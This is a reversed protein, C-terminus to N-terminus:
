AVWAAGTLPTPCVTRIPLGLGLLDPGLGPHGLGHSYVVRPQLVHPAFYLFCYEPVPWTTHVPVIRRGCSKLLERVQLLFWPLCGQHACRVDTLPPM